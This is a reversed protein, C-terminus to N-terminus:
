IQAGFSGKSQLLRRQSEGKQPHNFGVLSKPATMVPGPSHGGGMKAALACCGSVLGQSSSWTPTHSSLSSM